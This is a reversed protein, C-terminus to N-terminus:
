IPVGTSEALHAVASPPRAEPAAPCAVLGCVLLAPHGRYLSPEHGMVVLEAM